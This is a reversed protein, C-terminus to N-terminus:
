DQGRGRKTSTVDGIDTEIITIRHRTSVAVATASGDGTTDDTDFRISVRCFIRIFIAYPHAGDYTM